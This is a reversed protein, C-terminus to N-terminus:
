KIIPGTFTPQLDTMDEDEEFYSSTQQRTVMRTRTPTAVPSLPSVQLVTRVPSVHSTRPPTRTPRM